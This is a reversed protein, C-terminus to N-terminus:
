AAPAGRPHDRLARRVAGCIERPLAAKRVYGDAGCAATRAALESEDLASCLLVPIGRTEDLRRLLRTVMGGDIGPMMVDCLVLDPRVRFVTNFVQGPDRLSEVVHGDQALVSSLVEINEASDDVILVKAM